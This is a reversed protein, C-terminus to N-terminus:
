KLVLRKTASGHKSSLRLLYTGPAADQPSWELRHKGPPLPGDHIRNMWRGAVDFVDIRVIESTALEVDVTVSSVVPNPYTEFRTIHGPLTSEPEASTTTGFVFKAYRAARVSYGDTATM